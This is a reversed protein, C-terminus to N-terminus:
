RDQRASSACLTQDPTDRFRYAHIYDIEMVSPNPTKEISYGSGLALNAMLLLPMKHIAPTELKWIPQRNFYYVIFSPDVKVGFTNFRDTLSNVDVKTSKGQSEARVPNKHWIHLASEFGDPAHGYYEIIDIELSPETRNRPENTGLWFAPWVGPGAPMKVRAEFYGYQLAFGNTNGDASALLGSRWVGEYDKKAIITAIGNKVAFPFGDGPDTFIADGFDGNWPTHAIWRRDQIERPAVSLDDFDDVFVPELRCFDLADELVNEATAVMPLMTVFVALATALATRM